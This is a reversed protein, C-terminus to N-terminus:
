SRLGYRQMLNYVRKRTTGLTRAAQSINGGSVDLAKKLAMEEAEHLTLLGSLVQRSSEGIYSPLDRKVLNKGRATVVAGEIVGELERVNGKWPGNRLIERAAPDIGKVQRRFRRNARQLFHDALLPIDEKREVLPPLTLTVSGIRSFLDRHFEGEDVKDRIGPDAACLLRVDLEIERNAGIPLIKNSHLFRLLKAQVPGSLADVDDLFITGGDASRFLGVSDRVAGEFSGRTYGFLENQILDPPLAGCNVPVFPGNAQPSSYHITRALLDKGTGPAGMILIPRDTEITQTLRQFLDQMGKSKGVIQDFRWTRRVEKLLRAVEARLSQVKYSQDAAALLRERKFPKPVFDSAGRKMCKVADQITGHATIMIVEIDPRIRRIERLAEMGNMDPLRIDLFVIGIRPDTSIRAIADGASYVSEARFGGRKLFHSCIQAIQKEDDVVLIHIDSKPAM